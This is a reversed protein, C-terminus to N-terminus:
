FRLKETQITRRAATEPVMIVGVSDGAARFEKASVGSPSSSRLNEEYCSSFANQSSTRRCEPMTM